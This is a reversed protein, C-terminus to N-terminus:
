AVVTVTALAFKSNDEISSCRVTFTGPALPAKYLGETGISGGNSNLVEWKMGSSGNKIEAYFQFDTGGKMQPPTATITLSINAIPKQADKVYGLYKFVTNAAEAGIGLVLGTVVFDGFKGIAGSDKWVFKLLQIETIGAAGLGLLFALVAMLSKKRDIDTTTSTSNATGKVASNLLQVFNNVLPDIMQLVQQIAVGVIYVLALTQGADFNSM